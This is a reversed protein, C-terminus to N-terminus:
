WETTAVEFTPYTYQDIRRGLNYAGTFGGVHNGVIYTTPDGYAAQFLEQLLGSGSAGNTTDWTHQLLAPNSFLTMHFSGPGRRIQSNYYYYRGDADRFQPAIALDADYGVVRSSNFGYDFSSGYAVNLWGTASGPEHNCGGTKFDLIAYDCDDTGSTVYCDPVSVKGCTWPGYAQSTNVASWAPCGAISCWKFQSVAQQNVQAYWGGGFGYFKHAASLATWRGILTGSGNNFNITALGPWNWQYTTLSSYIRDTNGPTIIAKTNTNALDFTPTLLKEVDLFSSREIVGFQTAQVDFLQAAENHLTTHNTWMSGPVISHAQTPTAAVDVAHGPAITRMKKGSRYAERSAGVTALDEDVQIYETATGDARFVMTHWRLRHAVEELPLSDQDPGITPAKKEENITPPSAFEFIRHVIWKHGDEEVVTGDPPPNSFADEPKKTLGTAISAAREQKFAVEQSDEALACGSSVLVLIVSAGGASACAKKM